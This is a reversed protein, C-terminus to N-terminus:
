RLVEEWFRGATMGAARKRAAAGLRLRLSSDEWLRFLARTLAGVDGPPVVLAEGDDDVYDRDVSM